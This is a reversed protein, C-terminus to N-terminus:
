PQQLKRIANRMCELSGVRHEVLYIIFFTECVCVSVFEHAATTKGHRYLCFVQKFINAVIEKIAAREANLMRQRFGSREGLVFSVVSISSFLKAHSCRYSVAGSVPM